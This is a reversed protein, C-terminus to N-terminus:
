LTRLKFAATFDKDSDNFETSVEDSDIEMKNVIVKTM